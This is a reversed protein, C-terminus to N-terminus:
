KCNWGQLSKCPAVFLTGLPTPHGFLYKPYYISRSLPMKSKPTLNTSLHATRKSINSQSHNVQYYEIYEKLTAMDTTDLTDEGARTVLILHAGEKHEGLVQSLATEVGCMVCRAEEGGLRYKDPIIDALHGRSGRLRTLPAEVQSENTFSVVALRTDDPLDYKILKHAAKNIYKWDDNDTMSPTIEMVLVHTPPPATVVDIRPASVNSGQQMRGGAAMDESDRIIEWAGRGECMVRQKTPGPEQVIREEPCYSTVQPLLPWTGLSCSVQPNPGSPHYLCTQDASPVCRSQGTTPHVWAGEVRTDTVGTPLWHGNSIFQAPYLPDGPYGAEDFIGFRLKIFEHAFLKGSSASIEGDSANWRSVFDLPLSIIDGPGPQGCSGTQRTWPRFLTKSSHIPTQHCSFIILTM